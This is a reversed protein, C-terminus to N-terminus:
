IKQGDFNCRFFYTSVVHMKRGDFNCRFFYMSVVYIKRGTFNRRFFYTSIVHIRGAFNRQFFYTSVLSSKKILSIVDFFYTSIVHFNTSIRDKVYRRLISTSDVHIRRPTGMPNKLAGTAVEKENQIAVKEMKCLLTTECYSAQWKPFYCQSLDSFIYKTSTELWASMTAMIRFFKIEYTNWISKYVYICIDTCFTRFKGYM